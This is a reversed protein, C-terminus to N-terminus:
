NGIEKALQALLNERKSELEGEVIAKESVLDSEEPQFQLKVKLVLADAMDAITPHDLILTSKLKIGLKTEIFKKLDLASLSDIGLDLFGMENSIDDPHELRALESVYQALLQQMLEIAESHGLDVLQSALESVIKKNTSSGTVKAKVSNLKKNDVGPWFTASGPLSSLLTTDASLIAIQCLDRNELSEELLSFARDTDLFGYGTRSIRDLHNTSLGATMGLKEWPGWAVSVIPIDQAFYFAALCDLAANSAAYNSQGAAGVWGSTSSYLIIRGPNLEAFARILNVAGDLKVKSLLRFDDGRLDAVLGDRRIGAAHIIRDIEAISKAKKALRTVDESISVDCRQIEIIAGGARMDSIVRQAKENAGSRSALIFKRAGKTFMWQATALGLGGLGGTIVQLKRPDFELTESSGEHRILTESSFEFIEGSKISLRSGNPASHGLLSVLATFSSSIDDIEIAVTGWELQESAYSTAQAILAASLVSAPYILSAATTQPGTANYIEPGQPASAATIVFLKGAGNKIGESTNLFDNFEISPQLGSQDVSIMDIYLVICDHDDFNISRALAADCVIEPEIGLSVLATLIPARDSASGIVYVPDLQAFEQTPLDRYVPRFTRSYAHPSMSNHVFVDSSVPRLEIGRTELIVEGNLSLLKVTAKLRGDSQSFLKAHAWVQSQPLAGNWQICEINAPIVTSKPLAPLAALITQWHCDILGAPVLDEQRLSGNQPLELLALAQNTGRFIKKFLKFSVGLELKMNEMHSEIYSPELEESCEQRLEEISLVETVAKYEAIALEAAVHLSLSKTADESPSEGVLYSSIEIKIDSNNIDSLSSGYSLQLECPKSEHIILPAVFNIDKITAQQKGSYDVATRIMHSVYLAAPPVIQGFVCHERLEPFVELTFEVPYVKLGLGPLSVSRALLPDALTTLGREADPEIWCRQRQWPYTPLHIRKGDFARSESWDIESGSMFLSAISQTFAFNNDEAKRLSPIWTVEKKFETKRGMACLIAAPGIEVFSDVGLDISKQLSQTFRVPARLQKGWYTSNNSGKEFLEGLLTSVMPISPSKFNLASIEDEFQKLIPEMLRSHFAHSVKLKKCRFDSKELQTSLQSLQDVPGSIVFEGPTNYAAIECDTVSDKMIEIALEVDGSVSAMAGKSSISQMLRSRIEVLKVADELSLGGAVWNAAIEGVSHGLVVDPQIGLSRYLQVLAVQISFLAPQSYLTMDLISAANENLNEGLILDKISHERHSSFLATCINLAERFVPQTLYLKEGMGIYQSGQGTFMFATKPTSKRQLSSVDVTSLRLKLEERDSFTFAYRYDMAHRGNQMTFCLDAMTANAQEDLHHHISSILAKLAASSKASVPLVYSSHESNRREQIPVEELIVHVNTGGIGLSNVGARRPGVGEKWPKAKNNVYFPTKSFEINSNEKKYHLTAPITKHHLALVTKIFGAIGSAIGMHGINTKVSGLACFNKNDTHQQFAKTLANVEIPDGIQTGTGHGEIFGISEANVGANQLAGSIARFEGQMSPATFGMKQGGDNAVSGGKIVAYIEDGDKEADELRKLLVAGSGSGFITGQADQDYARCHGDPSVIMGESYRHGVFQPLMLACGGAVAMVCEGTRLAKVAEHVAVLSSSCATQISMSPGILDLKYSVRTPLYDKDNAVMVNFGEMSDVTFLHGGNRKVFDANAYVNNQLYTNTAASAYVGVRGLAAEPKYGADEFAEWATELFVRQQPDMLAAERKSYNWFGTDFGEVDELVPAANVQDPDHAEEPSLGAAIAESATFHTITELGEELVRWFDKPGNAGPFRCGIGIVAIDPSNKADFEKVPQETSDTFEEGSFYHSMLRVTPTDFLEVMSVERELLLELEHQVQIALLSHGGLEFFTDDIGVSELGLIRCWIDSIQAILVNVKPSSIKMSTKESFSTLQAGGDVSEQKDYEGKELRSRLLSRKIKGIETRPFDAPDLEVFVSPSVGAKITISQRLSKELKELSTNGNSSYFVALSETNEGQRRIGTVAVSDGIVDPSKSIEAEIDHCYFNNGNIIVIDKERGTIYLHDHIIYALDGTEFWGGSILTANLEDEGQYGAFVSPGSLLLRGEQGEEVTQGDSAVIKMAAGPIVPGLDVFLDDDSTEALQFGASWTIGSCTEVMGFAPRMAKPPLGFTTLLSIFKRITSSVIAEGANVMFRMCSLDWSRGALLEQRDLYLSFVFNPAWSISARYKDILDLWRVPNKLVYEIPVHVQECGLALPMVGLFVLSGAHDLSMWNLTVDESSFGNVQITADVMALMAAHTQPVGKSAGTSGSTLFMAAVDDPSATHITPPRSEAVCIDFDLVVKEPLGKSKFLGQIPVTLRSSSLVGKCSFQTFAFAVKEAQSNSKKYSLATNLPVPIVGALISGWFSILVEQPDIVQLLLKDGPKLGALQLGACFKASLEYITSYPLLTPNGDKDVTTLGKNSISRRTLLLTVLDNETVSYRTRQSGTSESLKVKSMKEVVKKQFRLFIKLAQMFM